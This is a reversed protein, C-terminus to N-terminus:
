LNMVSPKSMNDSAYGRALAQDATRLIQTKIDRPNPVGSIHFAEKDGGATQARLTGFDLFTAVPGDIEINIDQLREYRFSAISRRFLGRQDIAIIRQDTITWMDLYYDTWMFFLIMWTILGWLSICFFAIASEHPFTAIHALAQVRAGFFLYLSVPVVFCLLPIIADRVLMFWHKRVILVIHEQEELQIRATLQHM